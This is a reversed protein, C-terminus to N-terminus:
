ATPIRCRSNRCGCDNAVQDLNGRGRGITREAVSATELGLIARVAKGIPMANGRSDGKIPRRDDTLNQIPLEHSHMGGAAVGMTPRPCVRQAGAIFQTLRDSSAAVPESPPHSRERPLCTQANHDEPRLVSTYLNGPVLFANAQARIWDSPGETGHTRRSLPGTTAPHQQHKAERCSNNMWANRSIDSFMFEM